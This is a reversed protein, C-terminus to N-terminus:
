IVANLTSKIVNARECIRSRLHAVIAENRVKHPTVLAITRWIGPKPADIDYQSFRKNEVEHRVSHASLITFYGQSRKTLLAKVADLSDLELEPQLSIGNKQLTRDIILRLEHMRSPLVLKLKLLDVLSYSRRDENPMYCSVLVLKESLLEISRMRTSESPKYTLALDLRKSKMLNRLDGSYAEIVSLTLNPSSTALYAKLDDLFLPSITPCIGLVVQGNLKSFKRKVERLMSELSEVHEVARALLYKGEETPVAGQRTRTVLPLGIQKELLKIQRTLAPQAIGIASAARSFGGNNCVAIFYKLRKMDISTPEV